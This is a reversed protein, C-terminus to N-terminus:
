KIRYHYHGVVKMGLSAYLRNAGLNSRTVVLTLFRAGHDQAWHAAARLINIGVGQRRLAPAVEIAHIMASDRHIAVFAAGAPRDNHRALLATKPGKVREMVQLRGPGIGGRAWLDEIIALPPYITFASVRPVPRDTLAAVAVAHFAVPDKIRYGRAALAADLRDEGARIMFLDPQGLAAMAAEAVDIDPTAFAAEATTSSVRQGGGAGTRITWPGLRRAAAAPWTAGVVGYLEPPGPLIM